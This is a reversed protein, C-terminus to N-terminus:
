IHKGQQTMMVGGRGEGVSKLVWWRFTSAEVCCNSVISKLEIGELMRALESNERSDGVSNIGKGGVRFPPLFGTLFRM